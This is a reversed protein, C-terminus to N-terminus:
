TPLELCFGRAGSAASRKRKGRSEPRRVRLFCSHCMSLKDTASIDLFMNVSSGKLSIIM